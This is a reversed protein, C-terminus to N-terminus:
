GALTFWIEQFLHPSCEMSLGTLAARSQPRLTVKLPKSLGFPTKRPLFSM